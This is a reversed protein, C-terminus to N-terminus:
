IPPGSNQPVSNLSVYIIEFVIKTSDTENNSWMPLQKHRITIGKISPPINYEKWTLKFLSLTLVSPSITIYIHYLSGNGNNHSSFLYLWSTSWHLSHKLRFRSHFVTCPQQLSCPESVSYHGKKFPNNSLIYDFLGLDIGFNCCYVSASLNLCCWFACLLTKFYFLCLFGCYCNWLAHFTVLLLWYLDSDM